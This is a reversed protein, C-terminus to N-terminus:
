LCGPCLPDRCGAKEGAHQRLASAPIPETADLLVGLVTRQAASAIRGAGKEVAMPIFRTGDSAFGSIAAFLCGPVAKRSDYGISAVETELDAHVETVAVDKLLEQLKM